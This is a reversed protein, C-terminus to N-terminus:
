RRKRKISKNRRHKTTKIKKTNEQKKPRKEEKRGKM